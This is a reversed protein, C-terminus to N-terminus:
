TSSGDHDAWPDLRRTADSSLTAARRKLQRGTLPFEMHSVYWTPNRFASTERDPSASSLRTASPQHEDGHLLLVAVGEL